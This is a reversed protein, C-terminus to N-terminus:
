EIGGKKDLWSVFGYSAAAMVAVLLLASPWSQGLDVLMYAIFACFTAMAAIPFILTKM